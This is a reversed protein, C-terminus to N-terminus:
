EVVVFRSASGIRLAYVGPQNPVTLQAKGSVSFRISQRTVEQGISTLFFAELPRESPAAQSLDGLEVTLDMGPAVPNPYLELNANASPPSPPSSTTVTTDVTDRESAPQLPINAFTYAGVGRTNHIADNTTTLVTVIYSLTSDTAISQPFGLVVRDGDIYGSSARVKERGVYFDKWPSGTYAMGVGDSDYRLTITSDTTRVASELEPSLVGAINEGYEKARLLDAMREGLEQYEADEFHCSDWKQPVNVTSLLTLYDLTDSLDRQANMVFPETGGCSYARMQFGYVPIPGLAERYDELLNTLREKYYSYSQSGDAEGQYWFFSRVNESVEAEALMSFMEEFNGSGGEAKPAFFSIGQGGVAFNLIAIPVNQEMSVRLATRGMWAGAVAYTSTTWRTDERYGRLFSDRDSPLIEFGALANSQGNVVFVDGAVLHGISNVPDESNDLYAKLEHNTRGSPISMTMDFPAGYTGYFLGVEQIAIVGEATSLELRIKQAGPELVTGSVHLTGANTAKDRPFLQYEEPYIDFNVQAYISLASFSCLLALLRIITINM